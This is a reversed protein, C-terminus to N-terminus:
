LSMANRNSRKMERSKWKVIWKRGIVPRLSQTTLTPRAMAWATLRRTRAWTPDHSIQPPCLPVPTPNRGTSRNGRGIKCEDDDIMWPQYWLGFLPRLVLHVWDWGMLFIFVIFVTLTTLYLLVHTLEWTTRRAPERDQLDPAKSLAGGRVTCEYINAM